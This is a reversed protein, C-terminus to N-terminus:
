GEATERARDWQSILKQLTQRLVKGDIPKSIHEDMGAQTTRAIDEAFANATVAIIPVGAADPRGLSRIAIAAECGDMVPMQMDMLVADVSYPSASLFIQVADAGNAAPLVEAGFQHLIETVIERNLENDEAVLIKRGAWDFSELPSTNEAHIGSATEEQGRVTKLPITVTFRTGEGLKSEVSIEGSMQQVLSKVISMGLGTGVTSRSSFTTERSYPDFLHELFGPSMGIGTDEVIIQYKSHQQFHFQKADLHIFDGPESYKVSNSLLNNIIQTIKKQDGIVRRDQFDINVELFKGDEQARDRFIDATTILLDALDLEREDLNHKGAELRSMELIDNILELLQNAAFHIKKLYDRVKGGEGADHSKEALSCCGIIANLPTRMDHSMGSFFESKAKTSKQAADLADQLIIMNQLERRKEEDVDRFCLIVENPSVDRNYLTRINVWRYTGGFRRQYDGGYDLDGREIRKQINELSFSVEFTRFTSPKVLPRMTELLFAYSGKVPVKDLLDQYIKIGEYSGDRFNVRYIAYFSDGLMRVTDDAKKMTHSRFSDHVTMVALSLFLILSLGALVYIFTNQDGMLIHKTPITLIVTWGNDMVQYYVGRVVGETDEVFSDYALLSGDAIGAMIYDMYEQGKQSDIGWKTMSYLLSGGEDCLFYSYDEPLSRITNHLSENQIYVDMALVDGDTGLAKSITFIKQGTVADEYVESRAVSGGAGIAQRYWDAQAFPYTADGEWPNVAVIEGDIVAYFDVLGDGITDTLKSFYGTLWGQIAAPNGGDSLIDDVFQSALILNTELSSINLEEEVAYSHALAMGLRQTNQLLKIRVLFIVSVLLIAVFFLLLGNLINGHLGSLKRTKKM